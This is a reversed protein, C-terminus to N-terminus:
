AFGPCGILVAGWLKRPRSEDHAEVEHKRARRSGVVVVCFPRGMLVWGVATSSSSTSISVCWVISPRWSSMSSRGGPWVVGLLEDTPRAEKERYTVEREVAGYIMLQKQKQRYFLISVSEMGYDVAVDFGDGRGRGEGSFEGLGDFVECVAM